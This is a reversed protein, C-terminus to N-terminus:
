VGGLKDATYRSLTALRVAANLSGAVEASAVVMMRDRSSRM